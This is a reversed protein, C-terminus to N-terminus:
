FKTPVMIDPLKHFHTNSLTTHRYPQIKLYVWDGVKYQKDTRKLNVYFKM